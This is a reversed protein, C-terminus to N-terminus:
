RQDPPGRLDGEPGAPVEPGRLLLGQRPGRQLKQRRLDPRPHRQLDQAAAPTPGSLPPLPPPFEPAPCSSLSFINAQKLVCLLYFSPCQLISM